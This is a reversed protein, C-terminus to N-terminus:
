LIMIKDLEKDQDKQAKAAARKRQRSNKRRSERTKPKKKRTRQVLSPQEEVKSKKKIIAKKKSRRAGGVKVPFSCPLLQLQEHLRSCLKPSIPLYSAAQTLFNIDNPSTGALLDYLKFSNPTPEPTPQCLLFKDKYKATYRLLYRGPTVSRLLKLFERLQSLQQPMSIHYYEHLQQELAGLTLPEELLPALDQLSIRSCHGIDTQLLKLQLWASLLEYKTMIECGCDPKNELKILHCGLMQNAAADRVAAIPLSSYMLLAPEAETDAEGARLRWSVLASNSKAEPMPRVDEDIPLLKYVAPQVKDNLAADPVDNPVQVVGDATFQLWNAPAYATYAQTLLRSNTHWGCNRAPLPEKFEICKYESDPIDSIHLLMETPLDVYAGPTLLMLLADLPLVFVDEETELLQRELVDAVSQSAPEDNVGAYAYRELRVRLTSLEQQLLRVEPWLRVQGRRCILKINEMCAAEEQLGKCQHLQPLGTHTSYSSNPLGHLLHQIRLEFWKSYHMVLPKMPAYLREKQANAYDYIHKQVLQLEKCRKGNTVRWVVFDDESEALNQQWAILLRLCAAQQAASLASYREQPNPFEYPLQQKTHDYVTRRLLEQTRPDSRTFGCAYSTFVQSPGQQEEKLFESDVDNLFTFLSDDAQEISKNFVKYSPQNHFITVSGKYLNTEM